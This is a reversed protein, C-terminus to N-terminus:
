CEFLQYYIMDDLAQDGDADLNFMSYEGHYLFTEMAITPMDNYAFCLIQSTEM